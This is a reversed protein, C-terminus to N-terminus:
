DELIINVSPATPEKIKCTGYCEQDPFNRDFQEAQEPPMRNLLDLAVQHADRLLHSEDLHHFYATAIVDEIQKRALFKSSHTSAYLVGDLRVFFAKPSHLNIM